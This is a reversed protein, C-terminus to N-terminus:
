APIIETWDIQDYAAQNEPSGDDAVVTQEVKRNLGAVTGTSTIKSGVTELTGISVTNPRPNKGGRTETGTVELRLHTVNSVANFTNTVDTNNNNTVGLVTTFNVGDTSVKWSYDKPRKESFPSALFFRVKNIILPYPFAVTISEPSGSSPANESEWRTPDKGDIARAPGQGGKSSTASASAGHTDLCFDYRSVVMTYSGDGLNETTGTTAWSEGQGGSGVPTKLNWIAKQIGAEALWLAKSSVVDAGIMRSEGSIMWLFGVVIATLIVLTIFTTILVAGHDNHPPGYPRRDREKCM